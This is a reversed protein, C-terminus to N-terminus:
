DALSWIEDYWWHRSLVNAVEPENEGRPGHVPIGLDDALARDFAAFTAGLEVAAREPYVRFCVLQEDESIALIQRGLFRGGGDRAFVVRKNVDLALAAPSDDCLGGLGLCTGALTGARLVELPDDELRLQVTGLASVEVERSRPGLWIEPSVRPHAALWRRSAPHDRVWRWQGRALSRLLRRLGRRSRGARAYILLAHRAAEGSGPLPELGALREMLKAELLHCVFRPWRDVLRQRDRALAHPSLRLEGQLHRRLRRSMPSDLGRPISAALVELPAGAPDVRVTLGRIVQSCGAEGVIGALWAVDLLSRPSSPFAAAVLEPLREILVELGAELLRRDNERRTAAELSAFGREPAAAVVMWADPPLGALIAISWADEAPAPLPLAALRPLAPLLRGLVEAFGGCDGWRVFVASLLRLARARPDPRRQPRTAVRGGRDRVGPSGARRESAAPALLSLLQAVDRLAAVVLRAAGPRPAGRVEIRQLDTILDVLEGAAESGFEQLPMARLAETLEEWRAARSWIAHTQWPELDSLAVLEGIWAATGAPAVRHEFRALPLEATAALAQLLEDVDGGGSARVCAVFTRHRRAGPPLGASAVLASSAARAVAAAADIGEEAFLEALWVRDEASTRSLGLALPLAVSGRAALLHAVALRLPEDRELELAFRRELGLGLSAPERRLIPYLTRRLGAPLTRARAAERRIPDLDESTLPALQELLVSTQAADVLSARLDRAPGRAPKPPQLKTGRYSRPHAATARPPRPEAFPEPRAFPVHDDEPDSVTERLLALVAAAVEADLREVVALRRWLTSLRPRDPVLM